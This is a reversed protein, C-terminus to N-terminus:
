GRGGHYYRFPCTCGFSIPVAAASKAFCLWQGRELKAPICDRLHSGEIGSNQLTEESTSNKITAESEALIVTKVGDKWNFGVGMHDDYLFVSNIFIDIVAKRYTPDDDM